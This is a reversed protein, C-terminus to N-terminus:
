SSPLLNEASSTYCTGPHDPSHCPSTGAKRGAGDSPVGGACAKQEEHRGETPM